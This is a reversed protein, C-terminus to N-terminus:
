PTQEKGLLPGRGSARTVQQPHEAGAPPRSVTPSQTEHPLGLVRLVGMMGRWVRRVKPDHLADHYFRFWKM